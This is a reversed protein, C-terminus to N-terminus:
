ETGELARKTSFGEPLLILQLLVHAEMAPFAASVGTVLAAFAKQATRNQLFVKLHVQLLAVVGTQKTGLRVVPKLQEFLVDANM